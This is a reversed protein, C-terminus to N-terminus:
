CLDTRNFSHHSQHLLYSVLQPGYHGDGGAPPVRATVCEGSPFQWQELLYCTNHVRIELDQVVYRRYGKFRSGAPVGALPVRETTHITLEATKARRPGRCRPADGEVATLPWCFQVM